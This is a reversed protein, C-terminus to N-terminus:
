DTTSDSSAIQFVPEVSFIETVGSRNTIVLIEENDIDEDDVIDTVVAHLYLDDKKGVKEICEVIKRIHERASDSIPFVKLSDETLPEGDSVSTRSHMPSFTWDSGTSTYYGLTSDYEPNEYAKVGVEFDVKVTVDSSVNPLGSLAETVNVLYRLDTLTLEPM